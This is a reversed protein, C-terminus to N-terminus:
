KGEQKKIIREANDDNIFKSIDLESSKDVKPLDIEETEESSNINEEGEQPEPAEDDLDEIVIQRNSDLKYKPLKPLENLSKLGFMKLFEDTVRYTMPKGPLDAKGAQEILDYEQLRYISGASDVGRITDIDSKTVRRNYAIIALVELSSRSLTPKIRKDIAPYIYEHYEKKSSLQFGDEVRVIEIGRNDRAYDLMMESIIKNISDPDIELISSLERMKVVRASAFLIAEIIGKIKENDM